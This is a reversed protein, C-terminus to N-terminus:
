GAPAFRYLEGDDIQHRRGYVRRSRVYVFGGINSCINRHWTRVKGDQCLVNVETAMPLDDWWRSIRRFAKKRTPRYAPSQPVGQVPAPGTLLRAASRCDRRESTTTPKRRKEGEGRDM